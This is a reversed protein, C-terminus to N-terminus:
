FEVVIMVVDFVIRDDFLDMKVITGEIGLELAYLFGEGRKQKGLV